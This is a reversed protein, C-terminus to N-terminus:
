MVVHIFDKKAAYQGEKVYISFYNKCKLYIDNIISFVSCM